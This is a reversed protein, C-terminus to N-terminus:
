AHPGVAAVAVVEGNIHVQCFRERTLTITGKFFILLPQSALFKDAMPGM